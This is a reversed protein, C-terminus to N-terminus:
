VETALLAELKALSLDAVSDVVLDAAALRESPYTQAVGVTTLACAMAAMMGVPSDEIAVVEHPQVPPTPRPPLANLNELAQRYGEPDPKSRSVDDATVITKFHSRVGLQALAGEVEDRLAGSVLGLMPAGAAVEAILEAAGPFVPFGQERIRAHYYTSKRAILQSLRDPAVQEGASELAATFCDRDDFALYRAYYDEATLEIGEEGLVKQFLELHIPEDDVLVGNFDFLVTRLMSFLM